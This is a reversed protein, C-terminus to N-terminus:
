GRTNMFSAIAVVDALCSKQIPMPRRFIHTAGLHDVCDRMSLWGLLPNVWTWPVGSCITWAAQIRFRANMVATWSTDPTMPILM